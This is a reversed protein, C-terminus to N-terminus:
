QAAENSCRHRGHQSPVKVSPFTNNMLKKWFVSIEQSEIQCGEPSLDAERFKFNDQYIIAWLTLNSYFQSRWDKLLINQEKTM